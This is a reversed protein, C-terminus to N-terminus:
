NGSATPSGTGLLKQDGFTDFAFRKSEAPSCTNRMATSRPTPLSSSAATESRQGRVRYTGVFLALLLLVVTILGKRM